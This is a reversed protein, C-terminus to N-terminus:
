KIVKATSGSVLVGAGAGSSVFTFAESELGTRALFWNFHGYERLVM